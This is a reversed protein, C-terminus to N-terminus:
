ISKTPLRCSSRYLAAEIKTTLDRLDRGDELAERIERKLLSLPSKDHIVDRSRRMITEGASGASLAGVKIPSKQRVWERMVEWIVHWPADTRISNPNIHSRMSRYGVHYLAGHFLNFSVPQTHAIASLSFFFLHHDRLAPNARPIIASM